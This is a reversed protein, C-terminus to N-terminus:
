LLGREAFSVARAGAVVVHDLVRIDVLSLADRLRNTLHKDAERPEVWGSPHNHSLIVAAANRALAEKVVERPHVSASDISGRFMEVYEILRHQNDLFLVAFMEHEYAALKVTLYDRVATPSSMQTGRQVLQEMVRRAADLIQDASAPQYEGQADRVLIQEAASFHPHNAM